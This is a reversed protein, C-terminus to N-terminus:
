WIMPSSEGNPGRRGSVGRELASIYPSRGNEGIELTIPDEDLLVYELDLEILEMRVTPPEPTSLFPLPSAFSTAIPPESSPLSPSCWGCAEVDVNESAFGPEPAFVDTIEDRESRYGAGGVGGTMTEGGADETPTM